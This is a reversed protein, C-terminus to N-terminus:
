KRNFTNIIWGVISIIIIQSFLLIGLSVGDEVPLNELSFLYAYAGERLGIGNLSLPISQLFLVLSAM